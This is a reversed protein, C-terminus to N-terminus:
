IYSVKQGSKANFFQIIYQLMGGPMRKLPFYSDSGDPRMTGLGKALEYVLNLKGTCELHKMAHLSLSVFDSPIDIEYHKSAYTCLLDSIISLQQQASVQSFHSLIDARTDIVEIPLPSYSTSLLARLSPEHHPSSSSQCLLSTQLITMIIYISVPNKDQVNMAQFEENLTKDQITGLAKGAEQPTSYLIHLKM